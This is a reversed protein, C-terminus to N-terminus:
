RKVWRLLLVGITLSLAPTEDTAIARRLRPTSGGSVEHASRSGLLSPEVPVRAKRQSRGDLLAM